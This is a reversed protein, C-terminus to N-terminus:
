EDMIGKYTLKNEKYLLSKKNTIYIGSLGEERIEKDMWQITDSIPRLARSGYKKEDIYLYNTSHIENPNFGDRTKIINSISKLRKPLIAEKFVKKVENNPIWKDPNQMYFDMQTDLDIGVLRIEKAGLILCSNIAASLSGRFRFLPQKFTNARCEKFKHPPELEDIFWGKRSPLFLSSLKIIPIIYKFSLEKAREIDTNYFLLLKTDM